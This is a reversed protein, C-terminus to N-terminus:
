KSPSSGDFSSSNSLVPMPIDPPPPFPNAMPADIGWKASLSNYWQRLCTSEMSDYVIHNMIGHFAEFLKLVDKRNGKRRALSIEPSVEQTKEKEKDSKTPSAERPIAIPSPSKEFAIEAAKQQPTIEVSDSPNPLSESEKEIPPAITEENTPLVTIEKTPPTIKKPTPDPKSQHSTEMQVDDDSSHPTAETPTQYDSSDKYENLIMM